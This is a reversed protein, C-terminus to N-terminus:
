SGWDRETFIGRLMGANQAHTWPLRDGQPIAM